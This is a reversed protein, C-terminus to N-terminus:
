QAAMAVAGASAAAGRSALLRRRKHGLPAVKRSRQGQAPSREQWCDGMCAAASTAPSGRAAKCRGPRWRSLLKLMADVAPLLSRSANFHIPSDLAHM